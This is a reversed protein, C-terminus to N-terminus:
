LKTVKYLRFGIVGYYICALIVEYIITRGFQKGTIYIHGDGGLMLFSSFITDALYGLLCGVILMLLFDVAMIILFYEYRAGFIKWTNYLLKLNKFYINAIFYFAIAAAGFFLISILFHIYKDDPAELDILKFIFASFIFLFAFVATIM